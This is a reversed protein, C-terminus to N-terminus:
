IFLRYIEINYPSRNVERSVSRTNEIADILSIIEQDETGNRLDITVDSFNQRGNADQVQTDDLFINELYSYSQFLSGLKVGEIEGHCLLDIIKAFQISKIDDEKLNSDVKKVNQKGFFQDGVVRVM